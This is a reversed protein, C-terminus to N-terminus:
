HPWTYVVLRCTTWLTHRQGIALLLDLGYRHRLRSTKMWVLLGVHDGPLLGARAKFILKACYRSM